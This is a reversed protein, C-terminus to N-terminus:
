EIPSVANHVWRLRYFGYKTQAVQTAILKLKM